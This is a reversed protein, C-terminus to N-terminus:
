GADGRAGERAGASSSKEGRVEADCAGAQLELLFFPVEEESLVLVGRPYRRHAKGKKVEVRCRGAIVDVEYSNRWFYM